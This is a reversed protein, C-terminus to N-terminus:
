DHPDQPRAQVDELPVMEIKDFVIGLKAALAMPILGLLLAARTPTYGVFVGDYQPIFDKKCEQCWLRGTWLSWDPDQNGCACGPLCCQAPRQVCVHTRKEVTLGHRMVDAAAIRSRADVLANLQDSFVPPLSESRPGGM